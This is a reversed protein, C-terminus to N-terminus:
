RGVAEAHRLRETAKSQCRRSIAFEEKHRGGKGQLSSFCDSEALGVQHLQNGLRRRHRAVTQKATRSQDLAWAEALAPDVLIGTPAVDSKAFTVWRAANCRERREAEALCKNDKLVGPLLSGGEHHGLAV